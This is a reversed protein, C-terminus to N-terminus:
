SEDWDVMCDPVGILDLFSYMDFNDMNTYGKISEENIEILWEDSLSCYFDQGEDDKMHKAVNIHDVIKDIQETTLEDVKTIVFSSSSSNSVFGQRLKM